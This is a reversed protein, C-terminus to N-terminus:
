EVLHGSHQVYYQVSTRGAGFQTSKRQQQTARSPQFEIALRFPRLFTQDAPETFMERLKERIM